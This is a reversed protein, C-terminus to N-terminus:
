LALARRRSVRTGAADLEETAWQTSESTERYKSPM